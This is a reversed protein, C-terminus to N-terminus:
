YKNNLSDIKNLLENTFMEKSAKEKEKKLYEVYQKVPNKKTGINDYIKYKENYKSIYMNQEDLYIQTQIRRKLQHIQEGDSEAIGAYLADISITSTLVMLECYAMLKNYYRSGFQTANNNDLLRLIDNFKWTSGRTEDLIIVPQDSYFSFPDNGTGAIYIENDKYGFEKAIMKALTTKGTGSLGNIYIVDMDRDHMALKNEQQIKFAREINTAFNIRQINNLYDGINYRRISGECIAELEPIINEEEEKEKIRNRIEIITAEYDFNAKVESIEYPTKKQAKAKKTDHILYSLMNEYAYKGKRTAYEIRNEDDMFWKAIEPKKYKDGGLHLAIHYHPKKLITGKTEEDIKTDRDHLIYAWRVVDGEKVLHNLMEEIDEISMKLHEVQQVYEAYKM